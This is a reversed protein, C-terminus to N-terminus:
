GEFTSFMDRQGVAYIAAFVDSFAVHAGRSISEGAPPMCKSLVRSTRNLVGCLNPGRSADNLDAEIGVPRTVCRRAEASGGPWKPSTNVALPRPPIRMVTGFRISGVRHCRAEMLTASM